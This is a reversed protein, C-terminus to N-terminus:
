ESREKAVSGACLILDRWVHGSTSTRVVRHTISPLHVHTTCAHALSSTSIMNPRAAIHLLCSENIQNVRVHSQKGSQGSAKHQRTHQYEPNKHPMETHSSGQGYRSSTPCILAKSQQTCFLCLPFLTQGIMEARECVRVCLATRARARSQSM